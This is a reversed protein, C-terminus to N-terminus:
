QTLIPKQLTTSGGGVPGTAQIPLFIGQIEGKDHTGYNKPYVKTIVFSGLLKVGVHTKGNCGTGCAFFASKVPASGVAGSADLCDGTGTGSQTVNTCVNPQVGQLTPGIMNGPETTLSDGVSLGYCTTGDINAQYANGGPVPGSSPYSTSAADWLKPLAVAQYDGPLTTGAYGNTPAAVGGGSGIKLNFTRATASMSNLAAIDNTQDFARNLNANSAPNAIGRAVNLAYMLTEYPIAWPKLCGTTAVPAEAWATARARMRPAPVGFASLVLGSMNYGTVVRLANQPTGAPTFARTSQNWNGLILSDVGPTRGMTSNRQAYVRASDMVGTANVYRSPFLQIAGALAGADASTQLENRLTWLRSFDVAVFGVTILGFFTVATIIAFAGRRNKM